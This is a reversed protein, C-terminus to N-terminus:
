AGPGHGRGAQELAQTIASATVWSHSASWLVRGDKLLIAQPSEHGVGTRREVEGAMGPNARVDILAAEGGAREVERYAWRSIFCGPDHLFLLALGARPLWDDLADPDAVPVFRTAAEPEM